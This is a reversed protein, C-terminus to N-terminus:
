KAAAPYSAIQTSFARPDSGMKEFISRLWTQKRQRLLKHQFQNQRSRWCSSIVRDHPSTLRKIPHGKTSAEGATWKVRQLRVQLWFLGSCCRRSKRRPLYVIPGIIRASAGRAVCALPWVSLILPTLHPIRGTPKGKTPHLTSRKLNIISTTQTSCGCADYSSRLM